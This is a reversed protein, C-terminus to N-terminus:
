PPQAFPIGLFANSGTSADITGFFTGNDLTVTPADQRVVEEATSGTISPFTASLLALWWSRYVMILFHIWHPIDDLTAAPQLEHAVFYSKYRSCCFALSHRRLGCCSLLVGGRNTSLKRAQASRTNWCAQWYPKTACRLRPCLDSTGSMKKRLIIDLCATSEEFTGM